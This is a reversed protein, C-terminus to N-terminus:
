PLSENIKKKQFVKCNEYLSKYLACQINDYDKNYMVGGDFDSMKKCNELNSAEVKCLNDYKKSENKKSDM